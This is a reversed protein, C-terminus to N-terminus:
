LTHHTQLLQFWYQSRAFWGFSVGCSVRCSKILKHSSNVMEKILLWSGLWFTSKRYEDVCGGWVFELLGCKRVESVLREGFYWVPRKALNFKNNKEWQKVLTVAGNYGSMMSVPVETQIDGSLSSKIKDVFLGLESLILSREDDLLTRPSPMIQQDTSSLCPKTTMISIGPYWMGLASTQKSLGCTKRPKVPPWDTCVVDFM